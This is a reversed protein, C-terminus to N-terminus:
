VLTSLFRFVMIMAFTDLECYELLDTRDKTWDKGPEAMMQQFLQSAFQGDRVALKDYSLDPAVFPLVDKISWSCSLSYHYIWRKQFPLALDVLRTIVANIQEEYQPYLLALMNLKSREFGINWVTISGTDGLNGLLSKIFGERFDGSPDALFANHVLEADKNEMTHLSYQFSMQDYPSSNVFPPLAFSVTEFDIFRIPFQLTNLFQKVKYPDFYFGKKIHMEVIHNYPPKLNEWDKVDAIRKVGSHYLEFRQALKRYYDFDLISEKPVRKWCHAKFDCAHPNTCQWGISVEPVTKRASVKKLGAIAEGIEDQLAQVLYTVPEVKFLREVDLDASRVYNTNLHIISFSDVKIGCHEMVWYQLAADTVHIDHVKTSSKVEYAHWGGDRNVLIDLAALVGDHKFAAEYIVPSGEVILKQTLELSPQYNFPTAPSADVGDPFLKQALEGVKHGQDFIFQQGPPTPPILDRRHKYLWLSKKCISGRVFTSKSLIHKQLQNSM